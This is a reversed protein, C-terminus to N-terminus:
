DEDDLDDESLDPSADSDDDRDSGADDVDPDDPSENEDEREDENEDVDPSDLDDDDDSGEPTDDPSDDRADDPSEDPSRDPTDDPSDDADSDAADPSDDRDDLGDLLDGGRAGANSPKPDWGPEIPLSGGTGEEEVNGGLDAPARGPQPGSTDRRFLSAVREFAGGVIKRVPGADAAYAVGGSLMGATMLGAVPKRLWLMVPGGAGSPRAPLQAAIDEWTADADPVPDTAVAALVEHMAVLGAVAETGHRAELEARTMSGEVWRALDNALASDRKMNM